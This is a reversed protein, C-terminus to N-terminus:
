VVDVNETNLKVRKKRGDMTKVKQLKKVMQSLKNEFRDLLNVMKEDMGLYQAYERADVLGQQVREYRTTVQDEEKLVEGEKLMKELAMARKRRSLVQDCEYELMHERVTPDDEIEIWASAMAWVDEDKDPRFSDGEAHLSVYSARLASSELLHRELGSEETKAALSQLIHCLQVCDHDSWGEKRRPRPTAGNRIWVDIEEEWWSPLLSSKKWGELILTTTAYKNTSNWVQKLIYLCDLLTAPDGCALGGTGPKRDGRGYFRDQAGQFGGLLDFLALVSSVMKLKYGLKISGILGGEAPHRKRSMNVPFYIIKLNGPLPADYEVQDLDVHAPCHDLLLVCPVDGQQAIHFPWFVSHIWWLTTKRDFWANEQTTYAIPPKPAPKGDERGVSTEGADSGNKVGVKSKKAGSENESDEEHDDSESDPFPSRAKGAAALPVKTGDAATCVMLAVRDTTPVFQKTNKRQHKTSPLQRYFLNTQAANYLCSGSINLDVMAQHFAPIFQEMAALEEKADMESQLYKSEINNRKLVKHLWGPSARFDSYKKETKNDEASNKGYSSDADNNEDLADTTETGKESEASQNQEERSQLEKLERAGWKVCKQKLKAWTAGHTDGRIFIMSRLLLYISLREEIEVYGVSRRRRRSSTPNLEGQEFRKWYRSFSRCERPAGTVELAEKSKLFARQSCNKKPNDEQYKKYRECLKFWFAEDHSERTQSTKKSATDDNTKEDDDAGEAGGTSSDEGDDKKDPASPGSEPESKDDFVDM